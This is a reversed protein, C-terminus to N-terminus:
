KLAGAALHYVCVATGKVLTVAWVGVRSNNPDVFSEPDVLGRDVLRALEVSSTIWRQGDITTCRLGIAPADAMTLCPVCLLMM